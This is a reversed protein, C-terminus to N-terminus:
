KHRIFTSLARKWSTVVLVGSPDPRTSVEWLYDNTAELNDNLPSGGALRAEYYYRCFGALVDAVQIEIEKKSDCFRIVHGEGFTHKLKGEEGHLKLIEDLFAYANSSLAQHYDEILDDFHAHEDHVLELEDGEDLLRNIRTYMTSFATVHPLMALIEGRKNYDPPPLFSDVIEDSERGEKQMIFFAQTSGAGRLNVAALNAWGDTLPTAAAYKQNAEKAFVRMFRDLDEITRSLCAKSYAELVQEDFHEFILNAIIRAEHAAAAGRGLMEAPMLLFFSVLNMVLHFRKDVVEIVVPYENEVLFEVVERVFRPKNRVLKSGKLEPMQIGHKKRLAHIARAIADDSPSKGVAALVFTPQGGFPEKGPRLVVDGTNGSEDLYFLM